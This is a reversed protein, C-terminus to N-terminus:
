NVKRFYYSMADAAAERLELTGDQIGVVVYPYPVASNSYYLLIFTDTGNYRDKKWTITTDSVIGSQNKIIIRSSDLIMFTDYKDYQPPLNFNGGTSYLLKWKGSLYQQIIQLPQDYLQISTHDSGDKRCHFNLFCFLVIGFVVKSYRVLMKM